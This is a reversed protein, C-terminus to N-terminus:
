LSLNLTEYSPIQHHMYLVFGILEKTIHFMESPGLGEANTEIETFGLGLEGGGGGGGEGTSEM